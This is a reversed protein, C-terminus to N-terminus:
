TNGTTVPADSKANALEEELDDLNARSFVTTPPSLDCCQSENNIVWAIFDRAYFIAEVYAKQQEQIIDSFTSSQIMGMTSFERSLFDGRNTWPMWLAAESLCDGAQCVMKTPHRYPRSTNSRTRSATISFSSPMKMLALLSRDDKDVLHPCAEEGHRLGGKKYFLSGKNVFITRDCTDGTAFVLDDKCAITESFGLHCIQM